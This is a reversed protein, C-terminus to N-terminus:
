ARARTHTYRTVTHCRTSRVNPALPRTSPRVYPRLYQAPREASPSTASGHASVAAGIPRRRPVVRSAPPGREREREKASASAATRAMKSSDSSWAARSTSVRSTPAVDSARTHGSVSVGRPDRDDHGAAACSADKAGVHAGQRDGSNNFRLEVYTERATPGQARGHSRTRAQTRIHTHTENQTTGKSCTSM